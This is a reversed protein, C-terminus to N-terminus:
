TQIRDGFDNTSRLVEYMLEARRWNEPTDIDQVRFRPLILAEARVSIEPFSSLFAEAKGWYFQGADHYAQELDQSRCGVYEPFFSAAGGDPLLRIAHQIPSEFTTASFVFCKGSAVLLEYGRRLDAATVFPATAYLGCAFDIPQGQRKLWELSHAIVRNTGVHDDSLESPRVFPTEAGFKRAISAIEEDETSVIVRDFLACDRAAAISYAIIPKGAFQRINKRPIRKSGGRAPIVAVIMSRRGANM